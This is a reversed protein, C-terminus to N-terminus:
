GESFSPMTVVINSPPRMQGGGRGIASLELLMQSVSSGTITVSYLFIGTYTRVYVTGVYPVGSGLPAAVVECNWYGGNIGTPVTPEAGTTPNLPGPM